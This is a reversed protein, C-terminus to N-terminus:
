PEGKAVFALLGTASVWSLIIERENRELKLIWPKYLSELIKSVESGETRRDKVYLKWRTRWSPLEM